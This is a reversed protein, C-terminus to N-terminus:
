RDFQFSHDCVIFKHKLHKLQKGCINCKVDKTPPVNINKGYGLCYHIPINGNWSIGDDCSYCDLAGNFHLHQNDSNSGSQKNDSQIDIDGSCEGNNKQSEFDEVAKRELKSRQIRDNRTEILVM